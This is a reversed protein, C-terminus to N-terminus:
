AAGPGPSPHKAGANPVGYTILATVIGIVATTWKEASGHLVGLSVAEAVAGSAAVIFKRAEALTPLKM